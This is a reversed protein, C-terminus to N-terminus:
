ELVVQVGYHDSIEEKNKGNFIIKSNKVELEKNTLILDLRKEKFHEEWGDIEGKVTVGSDKEKALNYTDYLGKSLLYDYGEGKIFADNNFDGMIFTKSYNVNSLLNDVQNKFSEDKDQWWGLHCSLFEFYENDIAIKAKIIKRSKYNKIDRSKSVYFSRYDVINHKTILALGEQYIDYGIHSMDWIFKYEKMGLIFLEKILMYAYNDKAIEGKEDIRQSVEQLAIVDYKEEGITKALYKIKELQKEEKWSHCNLTLLKM